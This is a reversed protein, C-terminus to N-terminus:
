DVSPHVNPKRMGAPTRIGLGLFLKGNTQQHHVHNGSKDAVVFEANEREVGKNLRVQCGVLLLDSTNEDEEDLRTM